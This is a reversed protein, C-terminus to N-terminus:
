LSNTITFFGGADLVRVLVGRRGALGRSGELMVLVAESVESGRDGDCCEMPPGLFCVRMM